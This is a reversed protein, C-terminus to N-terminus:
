SSKTPAPTSWTLTCLLPDHDVTTGFEAISYIHKKKKSDEVVKGELKSAIGDSATFDVVEVSVEDPNLTTVIFDIKKEKRRKSLEYKPINVGKAQPKVAPKIPKPSKEQLTLDLEEEECNFDVGAVVDLGTRTKMAAVAECFVSAGKYSETTNYNHFSMFFITKGVNPGDTRKLCVWVVREKVVKGVGAERKKGKDKERLKAHYTTKDKDLTGIALGLEDRRPQQEDSDVREFKNSDYLVRAEELSTEKAEESSTKKAEESSTKKAEESSTKKAEESSTKKAEKSSTKKAEKSSTKKAEKSTTKKAGKEKKPPIQYYKRGNGEGAKVIEDVIVQTTIEQLLLIDPDTEKVVRSVIAHRAPPTIGSGMVKIVTGSTAKVDRKGSATKGGEEKLDGGNINWSLVKIVEEEETKITKGMPKSKVEEEHEKEVKTKPEM